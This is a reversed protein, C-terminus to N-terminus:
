CNNHWFNEDIKKLFNQKRSLVFFYDSLRNIFKLVKSDVAELEQLKYINREARRCVTRCVHAIANAKCGGPLVFAKLTPLSKDIRDIEEEILMITESSIGCLPHGFESALYGGLSFLDSQVSQLFKRDDEDDIEEVLCAIFSNLEDVTGYAEIKPSTKPVRKGGALSTFGEDGKKTYIKSKVM